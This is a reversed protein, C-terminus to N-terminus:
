SAAGGPAPPADLASLDPSGGAPEGRRWAAAAVAAAASGALLGRRAPGVVDDRNWAPGTSVAANLGDLLRRPGQMRDLLALPPGLIMLGCAVALLGRRRGAVPRGRWRGRFAPAAGVTGVAVVPLWTAAEFVIVRALGGSGVALWALWFTAAWAAWPRRRGAPGTGWRWWALGVAAAVLPLRASPPLGDPTM